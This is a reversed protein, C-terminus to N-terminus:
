TKRWSGITAAGGGLSALRAARSAAGSLRFRGNAGRPARNRWRKGWGGGQRQMSAASARSDRVKSRVGAEVCWDGEPEKGEEAGWGIEWGGKQEGRVHM